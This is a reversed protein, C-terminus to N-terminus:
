LSKMCSALELEDLGDAYWSPLIGVRAEGRNIKEIEAETLQRVQVGYSPGGVQVRWVKRPRGDRVEAASGEQLCFAHISSIVNYAWDLGAQFNHPNTAPDELTLTKTRKIRGDQHWGIFIRPIGVLM